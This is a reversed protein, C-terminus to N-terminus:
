APEKLHEPEPLIGMRGFIIEVTYAEKLALLPHSFNLTLEYGDLEATTDVQQQSEPTISPGGVVVSIVVHPMAEIPILCYNNGEGMLVLTESLDIKLRDSEGDGFIPLRVGYSTLIM